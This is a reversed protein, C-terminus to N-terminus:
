NYWQMLANHIDDVNATSQRIYKCIQKVLQQGRIREHLFKRITRHKINDFPVFKDWKQVIM